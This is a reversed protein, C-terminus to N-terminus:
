KWESVSVRFDGIDIVTPSTFYNLGFIKGTIKAVENRILDARITMSVSMSGDSFYKTDIIEAGKVVGTVVTTIRDDTAVYDNLTTKSSIVTGYMVEALKRYGDLQAARQTTVRALPGFKEGYEKMTIPKVITPMQPLPYKIIDAVPALSLKMTVEVKGNVTNTSIIEAKAIYAYLPQCLSPDKNLIDEISTEPGVPINLIWKSIAYYANDKASSETDGRGVLQIVPSKAKEIAVKGLIRESLVGTGRVTAVAMEWPTISVKKFAPVVTFKDPEGVSTVRVNSEIVGVRALKKSRKYRVRFATGRAGAVATPSSVQVLTDKPLQDLKLIIDGELLDFKTLKVVSGSSDKSEKGLDKVIIQSNEKLRFKNKPNLELETYSDDGTRLSYDQKLIDSIKVVDWEAKGPDQLHVEGNLKIVKVGTFKEQSYILAPILFILFVILVYKLLKM